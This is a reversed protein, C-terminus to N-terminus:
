ITQGPRKQLLGDLAAKASQIALKSTRPNGSPANETTTSITGSSSMCEIRHINSKTEPDAVIRVKLGKFRSALYLSAAVNINQPFGIIAERFPGEFITTKDKIHELDIGNEKIYPAGKLGEPPKTTTLTLSTITGRVAKIADLGAIAGSPIKVTCHKLSDLKELHDILGGGSMILLAKGPMDLEPHALIRSVVSPHASEVILDALPIAEDLTTIAPHSHELSDRLREANETVTDVLVVIEAADKKELHLAFETGINGCGIIAIRKM